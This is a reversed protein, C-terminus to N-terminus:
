FVVPLYEDAASTAVSPCRRICFLEDPLINVLAGFIQEFQDIM